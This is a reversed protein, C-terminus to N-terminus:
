RWASVRGDRVFMRKVRHGAVVTEPRQTKPRPRVSPTPTLGSPV